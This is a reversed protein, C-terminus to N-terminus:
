NTIQKIIRKNKIKNWIKFGIFMGITGLVWYALVLYHSIALTKGANPLGLLNLFFIFAYINIAALVYFAIYMGWKKYRTFYLFIDGLLGSIVNIPIKPWFGPAGGLTTPIELISYILFFLTLSGFKQITMVLIAVFVAVMLGSILASALPIGTLVVIASALIMNTIFLGAAMLTIFILERVLFRKLM